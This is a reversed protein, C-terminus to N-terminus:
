RGAAKEAVMKLLCQEFRDTADDWSYRVATAYAADSMKQWANSGLCFFRELTAAMEEADGIPVFFGNEGEVIVDM